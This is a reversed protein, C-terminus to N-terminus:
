FDTTGTGSVSNGVRTSTTTFSDAVQWQLIESSLRAMSIGPGRAELRPSGLLPSEGVVEDDKFREIQAEVFDAVGKTCSLEQLLRVRKAIGVRNSGLSALTRQPMKMAYDLLSGMLMAWPIAENPNVTGYMHRFEMTGRYFWQHLNLARYRTEQPCDRKNGRRPIRTHYVENLLFYKEPRASYKKVFAIRDKPNLPRGDHVMQTYANGCAIAYHSSRRYGPLMAFLAPEVFGYLLLFRQLDFYKFDRADVHVHMGCPQIRKDSERTNTCSAEFKALTGLIEETQRIFWDGNAPATNIEFGMRPLSVDSVLEAGWSEVLENIDFTPMSYQLPSCSQWKEGLEAIELEIALFRRLPNLKFEKRGSSHFVVGVENELRSGEEDEVM